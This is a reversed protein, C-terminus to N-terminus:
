LLVLMAFMALAMSVRCAAAVEPAHRLRVRVAGVGAGSGTRTGKGAGAGSEARPGACHGGEAGGSGSIRAGPATAPAPASAHLAASLGTPLGASQAVAAPSPLAVLRAGMRVVYAAFYLLLLGTLVPTGSGGHGAHEGHGSTAGSMAVAMYVMAASCITHHARHGAHAEPRALTHLVFCAFVAAFVPATWRWPDVVSLPVAMVAMGAGTLAEQRAQGRLVCSLAAAASLAVLLWAVLPPGHMMSDGEEAGAPTTRTSM